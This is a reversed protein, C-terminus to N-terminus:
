FFTFCQLKQGSEYFFWLHKKRKKRFLLRSQKIQALSFSVLQCITAAFFTFLTVIWSYKALAFLQLLSFISAPHAAYQNGFFLGHRLLSPSKKPVVLYAMIPMISQPNLPSTLRVARKSLSEHGFHSTLPLIIRWRLVYQYLVPIFM